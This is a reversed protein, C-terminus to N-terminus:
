PTDLSGCVRCVGHWEHFESVLFACHVFNITLIAFDGLNASDV